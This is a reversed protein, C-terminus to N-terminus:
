LFLEAIIGDALFRGELTLAYQGPNIEKMFGESLFQEAQKLFHSEYGKIQTLGLGDSTRLRTMVTEHYLNDATLIESESPLIGDILLSKTYKPNNSVNWQRTNGIFSHASPGVGLYPVGAWYNSNHRSRHGPKAFNSIEYHEFGISEARKSMLRFQSAAQGEDLPATLGKRIKHELATKPEVTLAYASFHPLMLEGVKDLNFLWDEDTLGPTGYILDITLNEFGFDQARKISTLAEQANHARNMYLLDREHFSQIGISFRNIPTYRKYEKLKELTLDDPNAELTIEADKSVEHLETILGVLSMLEDASLLSPTGGGFYITEITQSELYEKRLVLEKRMAALLDSKLDHQTSFHFDCYNCAKKCFPIHLYIGAM